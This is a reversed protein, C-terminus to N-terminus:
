ADMGPALEILELQLGWPARAYIWRLGKSPGEDVVVPGDMVKVDRQKRLWAVAEDLDTVRLGLHAASHDSNRPPGDTTESTEYELLELTTTSGFRLMALKYVAEPDVDVQRRLADGEDQYPGETYMLEFGLIEFFSVAQPLDPVTFGLHDIATATPLGKTM